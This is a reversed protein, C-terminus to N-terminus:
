SSTPGAEPPENTQEEWYLRSLLAIWRNTERLANLVAFVFWINLSLLVLTALEFWHLRVWDIVKAEGTRARQITVSAGRV